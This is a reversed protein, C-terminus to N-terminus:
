GQIAHQLVKEDNIDEHSLEGIINGKKLVIVRDCIAMLEPIESSVFIVGFGQDSFKRILKIIEVKAGIDIGATPEDLMLIKIDRKLWKAIVVKQQNGGSLLNVTKHISDTKINLDQVCEECIKDLRQESVWEGIQAQDMLTLGLNQKVTHDLVLGERRRDEPVLGIGASIADVVSKIKREQGDVIIEGEKVPRLGFIAELIETRGSSLLGALGLVEGKKLDFSINKIRNDVSVNKLELIKEKKGTYNSPNWQFGGANAEGLMSSVIKEVTLTGKPQTTIIKGERLITIRDAIQLIENMRHSIYVIAVNQAKLREILRFLNKVELESLSATPEDMIMVKLNQSFAKIIEVMQCNGVNLDEIRAEPDLKIGLDDLLLKTRNLMEKKDLFGRKKIEHNLFVNEYVLMTPINSMEQFIMRIGHDNAEAYNNIEVEKGDIKMKGSDKSYIGAIIKMLTSKGAGNGGVLAHVEGKYLEFDVDVLAPVGYFSKSVKEMTLIKDAM